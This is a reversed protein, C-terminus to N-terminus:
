YEHENNKWLGATGIITNGDAALFICGGSAIVTGTPIMWCKWIMAKLLIINEGAM